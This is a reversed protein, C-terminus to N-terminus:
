PKGGQFRKIINKQLGTVDVSLSAPNRKLGNLLEPDAKVAERQARM